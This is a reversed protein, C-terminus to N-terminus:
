SLSSAREPLILISKAPRIGRLGEMRGARGSSVAMGNLLSNGHGADGNGHGLKWRIGQGQCALVGYMDAINQAHLGSVKEAKKVASAIFVVGADCGHVSCADVEPEAAGSPANWVRRHM